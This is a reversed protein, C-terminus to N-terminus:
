ELTMLPLDLDNTEYSNDLAEDDGLAWHRFDLRYFRHLDILKSHNEQNHMKWYYGVSKVLWTPVKLFPKRHM